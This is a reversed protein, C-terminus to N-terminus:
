AIRFDKFKKTATNYWPMVLEHWLKAFAESMSKAQGTQKLKVDAIMMM